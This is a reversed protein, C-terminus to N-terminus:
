KNKNANTEDQHKQHKTHQKKSNNATKQRTECSTNKTEVTAPTSAKWMRQRLALLGNISARIGFCLLVCHCTNKNLSTKNTKTTQTSYQRKSIIKPRVTKRILNQNTLQRILKWLKNMMIQRAVRNTREPRKTEKHIILKM